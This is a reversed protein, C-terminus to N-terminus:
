GEQSAAFALKDPNAVTYFTVVRGDVIEPVMIASLRGDEHVVIAPAGNVSRIDISAGVIRPHRGFGAIVTAVRERGVVPRRAATVKGGGDSWAVVDDALLRELGEVDGNLAAALFREVLSRRLGHDPTFRARPEGVHERARRYLQRVHAEDRELIEGIERHSYGFAERLVFVAREPPTLRELLVLLGLSISERQEVVDHPGASDAPDARDFVPEPLWPGVYVERRARASTLRTLCLNTVVKTLWAEPVRVGEADNWRVFADQLVDDAESAEGLMRYALGFLRSRNTEFVEVKTM